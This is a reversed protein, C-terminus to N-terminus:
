PPADAFLDYIPAPAPKSRPVFMDSQRAAAEIRRCMSEFYLPESEIGIFPHGAEIAAVGTSGSGAYPDLIVGGVPVRAQEICWRMLSVPKQTPHVRAQGATVEHRAAAGVCVGDWLLRHIRMPRPPDDNIWAAEGDGQDRLKGTPVKDWVLWTGAPLRDAFKHAGWLLVIDAGCLLPEPDFPTSDGKIGDPWVTSEGSGRFTGNKPQVRVRMVRAGDREGLDGYVKIGGKMVVNTNQKQGYPPDSIIASARQLTPVIERCDGLWLEADGIIEVRSM